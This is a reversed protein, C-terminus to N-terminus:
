TGFDNISTDKLYEYHIETETNDFVNIGLIYIKTGSITEGIKQEQVCVIRYLIARYQIGDYRVSKYPFLMVVCLIGGLIYLVIKRKSKM